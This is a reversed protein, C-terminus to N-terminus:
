CLELSLYSTLLCVCGWVWLVACVAKTPVFGAVGSPVCVCVVVCLLEACCSGIKESINTASKNIITVSYNDLIVRSNTENM